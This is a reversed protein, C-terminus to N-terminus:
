GLCATVNRGMQIINKLRQPLGERYDKFVIRSLQVDIWQADKNASSLRSDARRRDDAVKGATGKRRLLDYYLKNVPSINIVKTSDM